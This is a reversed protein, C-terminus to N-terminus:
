YVCVGEWKTDKKTKKYLKNTKRKKRRETRASKERAPNAAAPANYPTIGIPNENRRSRTRYTM